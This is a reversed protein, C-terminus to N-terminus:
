NGDIALAQTGTYQLSQSLQIVNIIPAINIETIAPNASAQALAARLTGAGGNASSTVTVATLLERPECREYGLPRRRNKASQNTRNPQRKTWLTRWFMSM